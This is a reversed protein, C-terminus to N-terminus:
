EGVKDFLSKFEEEQVIRIQGTKGVIIFSGEPIDENIQTAWAFVPQEDTSM